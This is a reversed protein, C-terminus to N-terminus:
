GELGLFRAAHSPANVAGEPVGLDLLLLRSGVALIRADAGEALGTTAVPASNGSPDVGIVDGCPGLVFAVAPTSGARLPGDCSDLELTARWDVHGSPSVGAALAPSSLGAVLVRDPGLAATVLGYQQTPAPGLQVSSPNSAKLTSTRISVLDATGPKTGSRALLLSSSDANLAAATSGGTDFSAPWPLDPGTTWAGSAVDLSASANTAVGDADYGGVVLVRPGAAVALAFRTARGTQPSGIPRLGGDLLDIKLAQSSNADRQPDEAGGVVIATDGLVAVSAGFRGPVTKSGHIMRWSGQEVDFVAGGNSIEGTALDRGGWIVVYRDDSGWAAGERGEIPPAPLSSWRAEPMGALSGPAEAITAHTRSSPRGGARVQAPQDEGSGIQTAVVATLAALAVLSASAGAAFRRRRARHLGAAVRQELDLSPAIRSASRALAERETDGPM